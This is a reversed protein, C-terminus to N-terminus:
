SATRPHNGLACSHELIDRMAIGPKVIEPSLNYMEIYRKNCVIVRLNNDLMVLGQTMNNLAADFRRYPESLQEHTGDRTDQAAPGQKQSACGDATGLDLFGLV